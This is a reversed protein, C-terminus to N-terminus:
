RTPINVSTTVPLSFKRNDAVLYQHTPIMHQHWLTSMCAITSCSALSDSPYGVM